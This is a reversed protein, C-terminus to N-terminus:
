STQRGDKLFLYTKAGVSYLTLLGLFKSGIVSDIDIVEVFFNGNILEFVGEEGGEFLVAFDKVYVGEYWYITALFFMLIRPCAKMTKLSIFEAIYALLFPFPSSSYPLVM